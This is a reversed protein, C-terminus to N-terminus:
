KLKARIEKAMALHAEVTKLADEAWSKFEANKIKKIAKRIDSADKEHDKVMEAMYTRDYPEGLKEKALTAAFKKHEADMGGKVSVKESKGIAELKEYGRGHDDIMRRAFEKVDTATAKPEVIKALDVESSEGQGLKDM